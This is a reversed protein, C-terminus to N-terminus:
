SSNLRTSKRDVARQQPIGQIEAAPELLIFDGIGVDLRAALNTGVACANGDASPLGGEVQWGRNLQQLAIFDTGVAVVNIPKHAAATAGTRRARTVVDLRPVVELGQVQRKLPQLRHLVDEDIFYEGIPVMPGQGASGAIPAGIGKPALVVNAGYASFESTMQRHIDNYLNLLMSVMAGGVVLSSIALVAQPRKVTLARLWLRWFMRKDVPKNM